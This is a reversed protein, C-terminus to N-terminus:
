CCNVGSFPHKSTPLGEKGNPIARGPLKQSPDPRVMGGDGPLMNSQDNIPFEQRQWAAADTECHYGSLSLKRLLKRKWIPNM